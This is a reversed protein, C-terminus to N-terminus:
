IDKFVMFLFFIHWNLLTLRMIVVFYLNVFKTTRPDNLSKVIKKYSEVLKARNM